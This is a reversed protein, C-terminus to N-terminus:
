ARTAQLPPVDLVGDVLKARFFRPCANLRTGKNAEIVSGKPDAQYEIDHLMYGLEREGRLEEPCGPFEKVWQFSAPFERTGLYPRHFCQGRMARRRFSDLHKAEPHNMLLGESDTNKRVEIHAKIGYRVDCLIMAARQQRQSPDAVNIGLNGRGSKMANGAGTHGKSPIKSSIENRRVYTFRVPSLVHIADIVWAMQPKWYIAELIGRAASPTMVDYSVREVKMEPRNFSAYDGWVMLRVGYAM